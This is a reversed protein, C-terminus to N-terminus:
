ELWLLITCKLYKSVSSEQLPEFFQISLLVLLQFFAIVLVIPLLAMASERLNVLGRNLAAVAGALSEPIRISYIGRPSNDSM